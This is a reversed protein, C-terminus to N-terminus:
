SRRLGFGHRDIVSHKLMQKNLSYQHTVDMYFLLKEAFYTFTNMLIAPIHSATIYNLPLSVTPMPLLVTANITINQCVKQVFVFLTWTILVSPSFLVTSKSASVNESAELIHHHGLISGNSVYGWGM